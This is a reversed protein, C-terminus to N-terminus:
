YWMRATDKESLKEGLDDGNAVVCVPVRMYELENAIEKTGRRGGFTEADILVVVPRMGRRMLFEVVLPVNKGVEPTILIVTSGRPLSQVEAEVLAQLPLGGQTRLLALTELIKGLQRGGREAPLVRLSHGASVLGVVRNRQLYYRALSAATSVAYEESSPPLPIKVTSRWLDREELKLGEGQLESHVYKYM